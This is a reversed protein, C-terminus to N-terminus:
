MPLFNSALPSGLFLLCLTEERFNTQTRYRTLTYYWHLVTIVSDDSEDFSFTMM